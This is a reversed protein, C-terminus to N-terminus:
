RGRGFVIDEDAKADSARILGSRARVNGPDSALARQFMAIAAPYDGQEFLQEAKAVDLDSQRGQLVLKRWGLAEADAPLRALISDILPGAKSWDRVRIAGAASTRLSSLEGGPPGTAPARPHTAPPQQGQEAQVPPNGPVDSPTQRASWWVLMLVIVAFGFAGLAIRRKSLSNPGLQSRLLPVETAPREVAGEGPEPLDARAQASAADARAEAGAPM